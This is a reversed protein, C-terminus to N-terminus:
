YQKIKAYLEDGYADNIVLLPMEKVELKRIAEAGLDDYAIVKASKICRSLLAGAGGTAGFYVSKHKKMSEIVESSRNGKGITAKLGLELLKPTYTDMRYSTTPGASGIVYEPPTPTPGMYYIVAGKLDFPVSEGNGLAEVLRKHATDRASYVTGSLYVLDGSRLRMIDKESLPTQLRYEM